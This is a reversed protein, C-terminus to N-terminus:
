PKTGSWQDPVGPDHEGVRDPPPRHELHHRKSHEAAEDAPDFPDHERGEIGDRQRELAREGEKVHRKVDDLKTESPHNAPAM